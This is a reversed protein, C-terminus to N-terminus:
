CTASWPRARHPLRLARRADRARDPSRLHALPRARDRALAALDLRDVAALAAADRAPLVHRLLPVDAHLHLAARARVPGQRRRDLRRLGHAPHRVGPGRPDRHLDVALRDAVNPIAGFLYLFGTYAVAVVIMRAAAGFVVGPPSRGPRSRAVRQLRLLLTAVQLGSMVPYTFEESAVAITSTMLLAPAVFVLYSVEVGGESSRRTSSRRSGSRSDSCTSSRSASRASSSRGATRACRACWTSPSTGPASARPAQPGM